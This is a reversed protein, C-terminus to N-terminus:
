PERKEKAENFQFISYRYNLIHKERSIYICYKFILLIHGLLNYSDNAGNIARGLIATQPMFPLLIIDDQFKTQLREWIHNLM